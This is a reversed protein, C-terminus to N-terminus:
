NFNPLMQAFSNILQGLQLYGIDMSSIGLVLLVQPSHMHRWELPMPFLDSVLGGSSKNGIVM